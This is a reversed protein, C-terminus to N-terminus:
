ERLGAAELADAWDSVYEIRVMRGDRFTTVQHFVEEDVKVGSTEGRGHFRLRVAVCEGADVFELPELSFEGFAEDIERWLRKIEEPGRCSEARISPPFEWDIKPDFFKVAADFDRRDYAAMSVRVKDVNEESM